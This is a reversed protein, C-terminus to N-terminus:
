MGINALFTFTESSTLTPFPNHLAFGLGVFLAGFIWPIKLKELFKGVLFTLLYIISILLALNM